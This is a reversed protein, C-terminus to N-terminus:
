IRAEKPCAGFLAGCLSHRFLVTFLRFACVSIPQEFIEDLRSLRTNLFVFWFNQNLIFESFFQFLFHDNSVVTRSLTSTQNQSTKFKSAVKLRKFDM